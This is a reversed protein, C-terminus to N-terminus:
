ETYFHSRLQEEPVYQSAQRLIARVTGADLETHLPVTLTQRQGDFGIRRLKVHSGRQSLVVFGLTEFIRLVQSGSLRRLRPM